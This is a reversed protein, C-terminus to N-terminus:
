EPNSALTERNGILELIIDFVLYKLKSSEEELSSDLSRLNHGHFLTNRIKLLYEFDLNYHALDFELYNFFQIFQNNMLKKRIFSIKKNANEEFLEKEEDHVIESIEKIKNKIFRDRSRNSGIFTYEDSIFTSSEERESIEIFYNRLQELINYLIMFRSEGELSESYIFRLITKHLFVSHQLLSPSNSSNIFDYISVEREKLISSKPELYDLKKLSKLHCLYRDEQRIEAYTYDIIQNQYLSILLILLNFKEKLNDLDNVYESTPILLDIKAWRKINWENFSEELFMEFKIDFQINFNFFTIRQSDKEIAELRNPQNYTFGNYEFLNDLLWLANPTLIYSAPPILVNANHQLICTDITILFYRKGNEWKGRDDEMGVINTHNLHLTSHETDNAPYISNLFNINNEDFFELLSFLPSYSDMLIQLICTDPTTDSYLINVDFELDNFIEKTLHDPFTIDDNFNFRIELHDKLLM